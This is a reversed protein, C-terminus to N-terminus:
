FLTKQKVKEIIPNIAEPVDFKPTNMKNSVEYGDMLKESLPKLLKQVEGLDDSKLWLEFDKPNLIVPMRDHIKKVLSNPECTIITATRIIKGSEDKWDSWLGAFAFIKKNKLHFYTPRKQPNWEYFGSALVLCRRKHFSDRFSPKEGLTESRANILKNSISKDKAWSPILGWKALDLIRSGPLIIPITQSPAVNYRPQFKVLTKTVALERDEMVNIESFNTSMRSCM